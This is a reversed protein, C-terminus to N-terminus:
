NVVVPGGDVWNMEVRDRGGEFYVWCHRECADVAADGAHGGAGDLLAGHGSGTRREFCQMMM